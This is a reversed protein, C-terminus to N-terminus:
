GKLKKIESLTQNAIEYPETYKLSKINKIRNLAEIALGLREDSSGTGNCASCEKQHTTGTGVCYQCGNKCQEVTEVKRSVITFKRSSVHIINFIEYGSNQINNLEYELSCCEGTHETILWIYNIM